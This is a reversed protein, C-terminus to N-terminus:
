PDPPDGRRAGRGLAEALLDQWAVLDELRAHANAGSPNPLVWVEAGALTLGQRGALVRRPKRGLAHELFARYGTLGQFCVIRAPHLALRESLRPVGLRYDELTLESAKATPRKVVDTLGLGFRPFEVDHRPEVREIGLAERLPRSLRSRTFAPWFRNHPRAYYHGKEVAYRSPNIGVLILDLPGSGLLDPITKWEDGMLAAERPHAFTGERQSPLLWAASLDRM